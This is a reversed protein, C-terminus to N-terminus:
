DSPSYPNGAGRRFARGVASPQLHLLLSHHACPPSPFFNFFTQALLRLRKCPRKGPRLTTRPAQGTAFGNGKRPHACPTLSLSTGPVLRECALAAARSKHSASPWHRLWQEGKPARVPARVAFRNARPAIAPWQSRRQRPASPQRSTSPWLRLWQGGKPARVPARVAFRNARPALAPWQSHWQRPASPQRAASPWLRLWQGEKPARVPARVAFRSACPAIAPWQSHRQRPASPEGGTYCCHGQGQAEGGRLSRALPDVVPKGKPQAYATGCHAGGHACGLRAMPGAMPWASRVFRASGYQSTFPERRASGKGEGGCVARKRMPKHFARAQCKGKGEGRARVWPLAINQVHRDRLLSPATSPQVPFPNHSASGREGPSLPAPAIVTRFSPELSPLEPVAPLPPVGSGGPPAVPSM